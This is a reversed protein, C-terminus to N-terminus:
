ARVGLHLEARIQDVQDALLRVTRGRHEVEVQWLILGRAGDPVDAQDRRLRLQAHQREDDAKMLGHGHQEKVAEVRSVAAEARNGVREGRIGCLPARPLARAAVEAPARGIRRARGAHNVLQAQHEGCAPEVLVSAGDDRALVLVVEVAGRARDVSRRRQTSPEKEALAQIGALTQDVPATLHNAEAIITYRHVNARIAALYEGHVFPTLAAVFKLVICVASAAPKM